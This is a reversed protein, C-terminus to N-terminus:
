EEMEKKDQELATKLEKIDDDSLYIPTVFDESDPIFFDSLIGKFEIKSWKMTKDFKHIKIILDNLKFIYWVYNDIIEVEGGDRFFYKVFSILIRFESDALQKNLNDSHEGRQKPTMALYDNLRKKSDRKEKLDKILKRIFLGTAIGAGISSFTSIASHLDENYSNFEKIHKMKAYKNKYEEDKDKAIFDDLMDILIERVLKNYEEEDKVLNIGKNKIDELLNNFRKKNKYYKKLANPKAGKKIYFNIIPYLEKFIDSKAQKKISSNEM